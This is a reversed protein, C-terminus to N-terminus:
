VGQTWHIWEQMLVIGTPLMDFIQESSDQLFEAGNTVARADYGRLAARVTDAITYVDEGPATDKPDRGCIFVRWTWDSHQRPSGIQKPPRPDRTRFLVGVSPLTSLLRKYHDESRVRSVECSIAAEGLAREIEAVIANSITVVLPEPM